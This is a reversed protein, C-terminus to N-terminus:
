NKKLPQAYAGVDQPKVDGSKARSTDYAGEAVGRFGLIFLAAIGASVCADEWSVSLTSHTILATGAFTIAASYIARVYAAIQQPSFLATRVSDPDTM